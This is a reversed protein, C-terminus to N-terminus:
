RNPQDRQARMIAKLRKGEAVRLRADQRLALRRLERQLKRWAELRDEDLRGDAVAAMVECGPETVHSCDAFRCQGRLEEVDAFAKEIGEDADWLALGRMGPTDILMAGSPLPVLERHTTTHKGKGDRRVSSTPMVEEGALRNVLTSKGAGSPGLLAVTHGPALYPDLQDLGDGTEASVVHVAVGLAVGHVATLVDDLSGADIVDAKTLVIAPAAGSQWGLALAREIRRVNVPADLANVLLVTDVNAAVVQARTERGTTSRKFASTRPRVTVIRPPDGSAFEAWDGVAIDLDHAFAARVHGHDTLLTCFGSDIRAV